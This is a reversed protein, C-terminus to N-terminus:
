KNRKELWHKFLALLVGVILPAIVTSYLFILDYM